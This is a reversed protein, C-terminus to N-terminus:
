IADRQHEVMASFAQWGALQSRTLTASRGTRLHHEVARLWRRTKRPLQAKENVVLGTVAQRQHRRLVRFKAQHIRYGNEYLIRRARRIVGRIFRREDRSFSFVIDDAYRSYRAGSRNALGSLRADLRYNVLNSLIPSTPAGQPLGVRGQIRKTCLRYLMLAAGRNWGIRRFYALLRDGRTSPFFDCLDLRVIVAQGVHQRAHTVISRGRCFGHAAPYVKLRGFVRRLLRRQVQKLTPNPSHLLRTGGGRKPIRAWRYHLPVRALDNPDKTSRRDFTVDIKPLGIRKALEATGQGAGPRGFM